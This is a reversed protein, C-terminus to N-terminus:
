PPLVRAQLLVELRSAQQLSPPLPQQGLAKGVCRSAEPADAGDRVVLKGADLTFAVPSHPAEAPASLYAPCARLGGRALDVLAGLVPQPDRGESLAIALEFPPEGPASTEVRIGVPDGYQVSEVPSSKCGSAWLGWLICLPGILMPGRHHTNQFGSPPHYGETRSRQGV